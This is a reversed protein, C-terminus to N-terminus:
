PQHADGIHMYKHIYISVCTHVAMHIHTYIVAQQFNSITLPKRMSVIRSMFDLEMVTSSGKESKNGQKCIILRARMCVAGTSALVAVMTVM